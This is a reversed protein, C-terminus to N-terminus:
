LVMQMLSKIMEEIPMITLLLPLIPVSVLIILGIVTNRTFPLVNMKHSVEFSNTLDSLSQIDAAGLIKANEKTDYTIWKQRFENVYHSVIIGYKFTGFQKTRTLQKIFFVLPTLVIIILYIIFGIIEMKFSGLTANMHWILNAIIGSLLITHAILVPSFAYASLALFGLGAARDSHLSNLRLNLKATKWLFYYWIFLRYYWRLFLFQFIPLSIFVYWYGALSFKQLHQISTMYWTSIVIGSFEKSVWHGAVIVIALIILEAAISNRLQMCSNLIDAFKQRDTDAILDRDTFQQVIIGIYEQVIVEAGILLPLALLFRAHTALDTLFPIRVGHLATGNVVSLILLPLWTLLAIFMIRRSCYKLPPKVLGIHEFLQYLPGGQVLSFAQEPHSTIQKM